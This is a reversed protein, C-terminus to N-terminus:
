WKEVFRGFMSVVWFIGSIIVELGVGMVVPLLRKSETLESSSVEISMPLYLADKEGDTILSIADYSSYKEQLAHLIYEANMKKPNHEVKVTRSALNAHALRICEGDNNSIELVIKEVDDCEKRTALQPILITSEVFKMANNKSSVLPTAETAINDRHCEGNSCCSSSKFNAFELNLEHPKNNSAHSIAGDKTVKAGFGELNLANALEIASIHETCHDVYVMRATVNISVNHVESSSGRLISTVQPVESKCCIGKVYFSSRRRTPHGAVGENSKGVRGDLAIKHNDVSEYHSHDHGDHGHSCCSENEVSKGHGHDEHHSDESSEINHNHSHNHHSIEKLSTAKDLNNEEHQKEHNHHDTCGNNMEEKAEHHHCCGTEEDGHAHSHSHNTHSHM